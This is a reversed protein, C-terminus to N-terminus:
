DDREHHKWHGRGHGHGRWGHPHFPHHRYGSPVVVLARPLRNYAVVAFPGRYTRARYWYGERNVYWYPGVRYMDYDSIEPAYYVHTRPVLIVHPETEFVVAPPPPIGINVHVDVEAFSPQACVAAILSAAVIFVSSIRNM